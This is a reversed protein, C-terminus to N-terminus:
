DQSALIGLDVDLATAIAKLARISGDKRKTEIETLYTRSMGTVKALEDQTMGRYKRIAKIPHTSGSSIEKMVEDPLTSSAQGTMELYEQLPLVIYPKGEIHLLNNPM